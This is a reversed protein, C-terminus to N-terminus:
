LDRQAVPKPETARQDQGPRHREDLQLDWRVEAGHTLAVVGKGFAEGSDHERDDAEADVRVHDLFHGHARGIRGFEHSAHEREARQHRQRQQHEHVREQNQGPAGVLDEGGREQEAHRLVQGADVGRKGRHELRDAVDAAEREGVHAALEHPARAKRGRQEVAYRHPHQGHRQDAGFGQLHQHQRARGRTRRREGVADLMGNKTLETAM